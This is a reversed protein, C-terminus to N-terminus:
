LRFKYLFVFLFFSFLGLQLFTCGSFDWDQGARKVRIRAGSEIAMRAPNKNVSGTEKFLYSFTNKWEREKLFFFFFNEM